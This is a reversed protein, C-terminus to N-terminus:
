KGSDEGEKEGEEKKKGIVEPEEAAAEEEGEEARKVQVGIIVTEPDGLITCNPPPTLDKLRIFQGAELSEINLTYSEPVDRPLGRALFEQVPFTLVGGSATGKAVGLTEIPVAVEVEQDIRVRTFDVHLITSGLADYQVERVLGHEKKKGVAITAIRHGAHLFKEFVATDLCVQVNEGNQGYINAPLKGEKRIRRAVRTGFETRPEATLVTEEM